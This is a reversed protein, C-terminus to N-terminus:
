RTLHVAPPYLRQLAATEEAKRMQFLQYLGRGAAMGAGSPVFQSRDASEVSGTQLRAADAYMLLKAAAGLIVLDRHSEMFGLSVLTDSDNVPSTPEAAYVVKITRGPVMIDHIDISKGGSFATTDAVADFSWRRVPVWRQSPGVSQWSVSVIWGVDAPLGYTVTTAVATNTESKKVAYVDPYLAQLTENIANRIAQRPYRPSNIVLANQAHSAATTERYGRGFASVTLVNATTDVTKVWVLEDDIEILGRSIQSADDVTLQLVSSNVATVLACQEEQDATQSHLTAQVAKVLDLYTTAM